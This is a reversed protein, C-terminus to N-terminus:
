LGSSGGETPEYTESNSESWDFDLEANVRAVAKGPGYVRELM